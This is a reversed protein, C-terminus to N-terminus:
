NQMLAVNNFANYLIHMHTIFILETRNLHMAVVQWNVRYSILMGTINLKSSRKGGGYVEVEFLFPM